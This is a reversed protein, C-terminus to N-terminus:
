FFSALKNAAWRAVNPGAKLAAMAVIAIAVTSVDIASTIPSYDIGTGAAFSVVPAVAVLVGSVKKLM